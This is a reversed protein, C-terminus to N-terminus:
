SQPLFPFVVCGDFLFSLSYMHYRRGSLSPRRAARLRFRPLSRPLPIRGVEPLLPLRSSASSTILLWLFFSPATPSRSVITTLIIIYCMTPRLVCRCSAPPLHFHVTSSQRYSQLPIGSLVIPHHYHCLMKADPANACDCNKEGTVLFGLWLKSLFLLAGFVM